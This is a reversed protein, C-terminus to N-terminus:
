NFLFRVIAMISSFVFSFTSKKAYIYYQTMVFTIPCTRSVICLIKILREPCFIRCIALHNFNIMLFSSPPLFIHDKDDVNSQVQDAISSIEDSSTSALLPQTSRMLVPTTLHQQCRLHCWKTCRTSILLRELAASV